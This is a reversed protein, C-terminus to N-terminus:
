NCGEEKRCSCYWSSDFHRTATDNNWASDRIITLGQKWKYCNISCVPDMCFRRGCRRKKPPPPPPPASRSRSRRGRLREAAELDEDNAGDIAVGHRSKRKTRSKRRPREGLDGGRHRWEDETSESRVVRITQANGRRSEGRRGEGHRSEGRRSERRRSEGHRSEGRRSEGRGIDGRRSEGRRPRRSEARGLDRERRRESRIAAAIKEREIEDYTSDHSDDRQHALAYRPM